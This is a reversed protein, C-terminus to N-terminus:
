DHDERHRKLQQYYKFRADCLPCKIPKNDSHSKMHRKLNRPNANSYDCGPQPCQQPPGTHTKAHSTLDSKRKFDRNCGPYVCFWKKTTIHKAMHRKMDSEFAATEGCTECKFLERTSSHIYRHRQLADPTPFTKSCDVCTMLGHNKRHHENIERKSSKAVSCYICNYKKGKSQPSSYNRRIGYHKLKLQGRSSHEPTNVTQKDMTEDEVDYPITDSSRDSGTDQHSDVTKMERSIDPLPAANVPLVDDNEYTDLISDPLTNNWNHEPSGITEHLQLLTEATQLEDDTARDTTTEPTRVRDINLPPLIGPISHEIDIDRAPSVILNDATLEQEPTPLPVLGDDELEHSPSVPVNSNTSERVTDTLIQENPTKDPATETSTTIEVAQPPSVTKLPAHQSESGTAILANSDRPTSVVPKCSSTAKGTSSGPTSRQMLPSDVQAETTERPTSVTCNKVRKSQLLSSISTTVRAARVTLPTDVSRTVHVSTSDNTSLRATSVCATGVVRSPVITTTQPIGLLSPPVMLMSEDVIPQHSTAIMQTQLPVTTDTSILDPLEHRRLSGRIAHRLGCPSGSPHVERWTKTADSPNVLKTMHVESAEVKIRKADTTKLETSINIKPKEENKIATGVIKSSSCEVGKAVTQKRLLERTIMQQALLRSESPGSAMPLIKQQKPSKIGDTHMNKYDIDIKSRRKKGKRPTSVKPSKVRSTCKRPKRVRKDTLRKEQVHQISEAMLQWEILPGLSSTVKKLPKVEAFRNDGLWLLVSDAKVLKDFLTRVGPKFTCWCKTSTLVVAHRKYTRCLLYLTFADGPTQVNSLNNIWTSYSMKSVKLSDRLISRVAKHDPDLMWDCVENRVDLASKVVSEGLLKFLGSPILSNQRTVFKRNDVWLKGSVMKKISAVENKNLYDDEGLPHILEVYEEDEILNLLDAAISNNARRAAM